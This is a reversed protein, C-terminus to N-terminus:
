ALFWFPVIEIGISFSCGVSDLMELFSSLSPFDKELILNSFITMFFLVTKASKIIDFDFFLIILLIM